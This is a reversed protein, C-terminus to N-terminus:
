YFICDDSLKKGETDSNREIEEMDSHDTPEGHQDEDASYEGDSIMIVERDFTLKDRPTSTSSSNTSEDMYPIDLPPRTDAAVSLNLGNALESISGAATRYSSDCSMSSDLLTFDEPKLSRAMTNPQCQKSERSEKHYGNEAVKTDCTLSDTSHRNRNSGCFVATIASVMGGMSRTSLREQARSAGASQLSYHSPNTSSRHAVEALHSGSSGVSSMDFAKSIISSILYELVRM